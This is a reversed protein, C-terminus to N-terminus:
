DLYEEEYVVVKFFQVDEEDDSIELIIPEEAYKSDNGSNEQEVPVAINYVNEAEQADIIANGDLAEKKVNAENDAQPEVKVGYEVNGIAACGSAEDKVDAEQKVYRDEDIYIAEIEDLAEDKVSAENGTQMEVQVDDDVIGIAVAGGPAEEKVESEQKVYRDIADGGDGPADDKDPEPQENTAGIVVNPKHQVVTSGYLNDHNEVGEDNSHSDNPSDANSPGPEASPARNRRGLLSVLGEIISDAAAKNVMPPGDAAENAIPAAINQTSTSARPRGPTSPAKIQRPENNLM